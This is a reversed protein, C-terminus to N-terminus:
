AKRPTRSMTTQLKDTERVKDEGDAWRFRQFRHMVTWVDRRWRELRHAVLRKFRLNRPVVFAGFRADGIISGGSEEMAVFPFISLNRQGHAWARDMEDDIPRRVIRCHDLFIRAGAKTIAYAVAGFPSGDLEVISHVRDIFNRKVLTTRMPHTYYLRLYNIGMKALNVQALKGLFNWDVIVDDELVVYQDADDSQLDQWAAYHSSYAGLEGPRLPRGKAIIAGQEDYTLAPHLSTHAPYLSWPAPAHCARMEFRARREVANAMNIVIIKTRAEGRDAMSELTPLAM